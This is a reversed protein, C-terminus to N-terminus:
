KIKLQSLSVNTSNQREDISKFQSMSTPYPSVKQTAEPKSKKRYMESQTLRTLYQIKKESTEDLM